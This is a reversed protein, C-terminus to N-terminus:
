ASACPTCSRGSVRPRQQYAALTAPDLGEGVRSKDVLAWFATEPDTLAAYVDHGIDVAQLQPERVAGPPLAATM